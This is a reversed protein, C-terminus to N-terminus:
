PNIFRNVSSTDMVRVKGTDDGITIFAGDVGSEKTIWLTIGRTEDPSFLQITAAEHNAEMRIRYDGKFGVVISEAVIQKTLIGETLLSSIFQMGEKEVNHASLQMDGAFYALTALLAGLVFFIIRDRM